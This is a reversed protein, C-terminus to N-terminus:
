NNNFLGDLEAGIKIRQHEKIDSGSISRSLFYNGDYQNKLKQYETHYQEIEPNVACGYDLIPSIVELVKTKAVGDLKDWNRLQSYYDLVTILSSKIKKQEFCFEIAKRYDTFQKFFLIQTLKQNESFSSVTLTDELVVNLYKTLLILAKHSYQNTFIEIIEKEIRSKPLHKLEIAIEMCLKDTEAAIELDYRSIFKLGRLIRLPDEVFAGSVHRLIKNQLDDQGNYLDIIQNNQLDYMISNITFDRRAAALKLDHNTIFDIEFDTHLNGVKRETRAAAFEVDAEELSVIGFKGFLNAPTIDTIIKYAEELSANHIEIDIDKSDIGLLYDRTYGGVVYCSINNEQLASVVRSAIECNLKM